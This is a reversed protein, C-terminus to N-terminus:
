TMQVRHVQGINIRIKKFTLFFFSDIERDLKRMVRLVKSDEILTLCM